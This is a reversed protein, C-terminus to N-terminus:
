PRFAGKNAVRAKDQSVRKDEVEKQQRALERQPAERKDLQTAQVDATRALGELRPSSVIMRFGSAYVSRYLVVSYDADGWRGVSTASGEERPSTVGQTRQVAPLLPPGYTASIAEVMDADTMGATRDHDYDIVMKTLQDNYFSFVIQQVPDPQATADSVSYGRNWRLEQMLAPRLHITKAQSTAVRTLASVTPLDSGLQFDRYRSRDQGHLPHMSVVLGVAVIGLTRAPMM